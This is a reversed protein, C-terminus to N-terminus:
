YKFVLRISNRPGVFSCVLMLYEFCVRCEGTLFLIALNM